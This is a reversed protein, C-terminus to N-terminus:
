LSSFLLVERRQRRGGRGEKGGRAEERKKEGEKKHQKDKKVKLCDLTMQSSSFKTLSNGGDLKGTSIDMPCIKTSLVATLHGLRSHM